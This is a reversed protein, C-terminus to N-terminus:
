VLGTVIPVLNGSSGYHGETNGESKKDGKQNEKKGVNLYSNGEGNVELLACAAVGTV